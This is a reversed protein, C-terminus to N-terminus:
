MRVPQPPDGNDTCVNQQNDVFVNGNATTDGTADFLLIGCATFTMPVYFHHSTVNGIVQGQAGFGIQIGNQAIDSIHGRGTTANRRVMVRTGSENATIGNKGYLEVSNSDITVRAQNARGSQVFIGISTQTSNTDCIHTVHTSHVEGDGGRYFVGVLASNPPKCASSAISQGDITLDTIVVGANTVALPSNNRTDTDTNDNGNKDIQDSVPNTATSGPNDGRVKDVLVIFPIPMGSFLSAASQASGAPPRIITNALNEGQLRLSKDIRVQEPYVGECVFVTDGPSAANVGTQITGFTDKPDNVGPCPANVAGQPQSGNMVYLTKGPSEFPLALLIIACGWLLTFRHVKNM